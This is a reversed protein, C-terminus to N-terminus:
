FSFNPPLNIIVLLRMFEKTVADTDFVKNVPDWRYWARIVDCEQPITFEALPDPIGLSEREADEKAWIPRKGAYGCSELHHCGMNREQLGKM